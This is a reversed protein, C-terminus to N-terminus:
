YKSTTKQYINSCTHINVSDMSYTRNQMRTESSLLAIELCEVNNSFM